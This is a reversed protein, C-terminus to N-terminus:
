TYSSLSFRFYMEDRRVDKKAYDTQITPPLHKSLAVTAVTCGFHLYTAM